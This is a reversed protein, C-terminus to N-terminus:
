IMGFTLVTRRFGHWEGSEVEGSSVVGYDVGMGCWLGCGREIVRWDEISDVGFWLASGVCV